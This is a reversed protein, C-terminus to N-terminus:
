LIVELDRNLERAIAAIRAADRNRKRLDVVVKCETTRIFNAVFRPMHVVGNTISYGNDKVELVFNM